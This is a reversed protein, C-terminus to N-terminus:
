ERPIRGGRAIAAEGRTPRSSGKAAAERAERALLREDRDRLRAEALARLRSREEASIARENASPAPVASNGRGVENM